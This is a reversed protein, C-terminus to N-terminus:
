RQAEAALRTRVADAGLGEALWRAIRGSVRAAAVSSGRVQPHSSLPSAGYRLPRTGVLRIQGDACRGDACVRVVGEYAAPYVAASGMSPTSAVIIGGNEIYTRCGRAIAPDDRCLGLSMHILAVEEEALYALADAVQGASAGLTDHFVQASFLEVGEARIFSAIVRGHELRHPETGSTRSGDRFFAASNGERTEFGSDVIGIRIM